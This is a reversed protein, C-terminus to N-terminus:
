EGWIQQTVVYGSACALALCLGFWFLVSPLSRRTTAFIISSYSALFLIMGIVMKM